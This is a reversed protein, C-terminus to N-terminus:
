LLILMNVCRRWWRRRMLNPPAFLVCVLLSPHRLYCVLVLACAPLRLGVHFPIFLILDLSPRRSTRRRRWQHQKCNTTKPSNMSIQDIRLRARLCCEELCQLPDPRNPDTEETEKIKNQQQARWFLFARWPHHQLQWVTAISIRLYRRCWWSVLM